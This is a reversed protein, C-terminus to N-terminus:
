TYASGQQGNDNSGSCYNRHNNAKPCRKNGCEPCLIMRDVILDNDRHCQWCGCLFDRLDSEGKKADSM